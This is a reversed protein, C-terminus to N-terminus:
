ALAAEIGDVQPHIFITIKVFLITLHKFSSPCTTNDYGIRPNNFLVALRRKDPKITKSHGGYLYRRHGMFFAPNGGQTTVFVESQACISYDVAAMKFPALEEESALTEKTQLLPFMELLSAMNKEAKYIKGSALFIATKNSFDMGRLMLGVELPTLPCKGSMRIIGPRIVRGRKTFKGRWGIERAADMEKEEDGGDYVCCSFAIM